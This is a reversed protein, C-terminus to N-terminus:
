GPLGFYVILHSFIDALKDVVGIEELVMIFIYVPIIVKIL